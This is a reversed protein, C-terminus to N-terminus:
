LENRGIPRILDSIRKELTELEDQWFKREQDTECRMILSQIHRMEDRLERHQKELSSIEKSEFRSPKQQNTEELNGRYSGEHTWGMKNKDEWSLDDTAM